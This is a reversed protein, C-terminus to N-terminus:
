LTYDDIVYLADCCMRWGPRPYSFGDENSSTMSDTSSCDVPAAANWPCHVRHEQLINSLVRRTSPTTNNSPETNTYKCLSISRECTECYLFCNASDNSSSSASTLQWGTLALCLLKAAPLTMALASGQPAAASVNLRELMPQLQQFEKDLSIERLLLLINFNEDHPRLLLSSLAPYLEQLPPPLLLQLSSLVAPLQDEKRQFSLMRSILGRLLDESPLYPFAAFHAPSSYLRWGCCDEHGSVLSASFADGGEKDRTGDEHHVIQAECSNCLLTNVAICRWGHAACQSASIPSPKAFWVAASFTKLRSLYLSYDNPRMYKDEKSTEACISAILQRKSRLLHRRNLTSSHTFLAESLNKLVSDARHVGSSALPSAEKMM